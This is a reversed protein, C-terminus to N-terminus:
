KVKVGTVPLPQGAAVAADATAKLQDLATKKATERDLLAQLQAVTAPSGSAVQAALAAVMDVIAQQETQLAAIVLDQADEAANIDDILAM